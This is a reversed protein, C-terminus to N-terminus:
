SVASIDDTFAQVLRHNKSSSSTTIDSLLLVRSGTALMSFLGQVQHVGIMCLDVSPTPCPQFLATHSHKDTFDLPFAVHFLGSVKQLIKLDYVPFGFHTFKNEIYSEVNEDHNNVLSTNNVSLLDGNTTGESVGEDIDLKDEIELPHTTRLHKAVAAYIPIVYTTLEQNTVTYLLNNCITANTIEATYTCNTLFETKSFVNYIFGQKSTSVFCIM